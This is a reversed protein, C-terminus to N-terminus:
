PMRVYRQGPGQGKLILQLVSSHDLIQGGPYGNISRGVAVSMSM